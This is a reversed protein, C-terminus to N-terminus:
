GSIQVTKNPDYFKLEESVRNEYDELIQAGEEFRVYPDGCGSLVGVLLVCISTLVSLINRVKKSTM